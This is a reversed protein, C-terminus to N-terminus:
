AHDNSLKNVDKAFYTNCLERIRMSRAIFAQCDVLYIILPISSVIVTILSIYEDQTGHFAFGTEFEPYDTPIRISFFKNINWNINPMMSGWADTFFSFDGDRQIYVYLVFGGICLVSVTFPLWSKKVFYIRSKRRAEKVFIKKKDIVKTKLINYMLNDIVLGQRKMIYGVLKQIYGVVMVIFLIIIVLAILTKKDSETLKVLFFYNDM